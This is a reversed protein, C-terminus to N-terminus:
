HMQDGSYDSLALRAMKPDDTIIGDVGLAALRRVDEETNVTWTNILRFHARFRTMATEDLLQAKPHVAGAGLYVLARGCHLMAASLLAQGVTTRPADLLLAVPINPLRRVLSFVQPLHFSSLLVGEGGHRRILEAARAAMWLPAIVDGKLEINVYAGTRAQFELVQRLTPVPQGHVTALGAVQSRSSRSILVPGGLTAIADDHAIFLEGDSSMRVDVEVGDAGDLLAQEFALM